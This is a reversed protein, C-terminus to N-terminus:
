RDKWPSIVLALDEPDLMDTSGQMKVVQVEMAAETDAEVGVKVPASAQLLLTVVRVGKAPTEM